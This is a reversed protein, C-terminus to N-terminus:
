KEEFFGYKAADSLFKDLDDPVYLGETYSRFLCEVQVRRISDVTVLLKGGLRLACLSGDAIMRRITPPSIGGLIEGAEATGVTEPFDFTKNKPM